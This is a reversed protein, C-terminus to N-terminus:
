IQGEHSNSNRLQQSHAVDDREDQLKIDVMGDSVVMDGSGSPREIKTASEGMSDDNVSEEDSDTEDGGCCCRKIEKQLSENMGYAIANAMGNINLFITTLIYLGVSPNDQDAANQIRNITGFLYGFFMICPYAILRRVVGMIRKNHESGGDVTAGRIVLIIQIYLYTMVIMVIWVWTYFSMFRWVKGTSSNDIWCWAGADGYTNGAFPMCTWFITWSLIAINYYLFERRERADRVESSEQETELVVNRYLTVAIALVWCYGYTTAFQIGVAQTTCRASPSDPNGLFNFISNLIDAWSLMFVLKFHFQRLKQFKIIAAIILSSGVASIACSVWGAINIANEEDWTFNDAAEAMAPPWV